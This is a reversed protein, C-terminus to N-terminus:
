NTVRQHFPHGKEQVQKQEMVLPIFALVILGATDAARIAKRFLLKKTIMLLKEYVVITQNRLSSYIHKQNSTIKPIFNFMNLMLGEHVKSECIITLWLISM